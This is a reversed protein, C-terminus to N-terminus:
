SAGHKRSRNTVSVVVGALLVPISLGVLLLGPGPLPIMILGLLILAAGVIFISRSLM